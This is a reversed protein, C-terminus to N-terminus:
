PKVPCLPWLCSSTGIDTVLTEARRAEEREREVKQQKEVEERESQEIHAATDGM